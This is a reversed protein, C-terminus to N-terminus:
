CTRLAVVTLGDMVVLAGAMYGFAADATACIAMVWTVVWLLAFMVTYLIMGCKENGESAWVKAAVQGFPIFPCPLGILSSIELNFLFVKFNKKQLTAPDGGRGM